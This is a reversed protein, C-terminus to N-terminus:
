LTDLSLAQRALFMFWRAHRDEANKVHSFFFVDREVDIVFARMADRHVMPTKPFVHLLRPIDRSSICAIRIKFRVQFFTMWINVQRSHAELADNYEQRAAIRRTLQRFSSVKKKAPAPHGKTFIALPSDGDDPQDIPFQMIYEKERRSFRKEYKTTDAFQDTVWRQFADGDESTYQRCFSLFDDRGLTMKLVEPHGNDRGGVRMFVYILKNEVQPPEFRQDCQWEYFVSLANWALGQSAGAEESSCELAM